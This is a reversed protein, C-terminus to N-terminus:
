EVLEAQEHFHLALTSKGDNLCAVRGVKDKEGGRWEPQKAYLEDIVLVVYARLQERDFKLVFSEEIM